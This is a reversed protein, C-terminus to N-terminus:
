GRCRWRATWNPPLPPCQSEPGAYIIRDDQLVLAARPIPAAGTGDVLQGNRILTTGSASKM